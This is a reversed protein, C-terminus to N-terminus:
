LHFQGNHSCSGVSSLLSCSSWGLGSGRGPCGAALAGLGWGLVFRSDGCRGSGPRHGGPDASCGWKDRRQRGGGGRTGRTNMEPADRLVGHMDNGDRFLSGWLDLRCCLRVGLRLGTGRGQRRVKLCYYGIICFFSIVTHLVALIRLAPEMYGSGEELVYHEALVGPPGSDPGGGPGGGRASESPSRPPPEKGEVVSSTSVQNLGNLTRDTQTRQPMLDVLFM